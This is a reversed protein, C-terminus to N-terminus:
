LVKLRMWGGIAWRDCETNTWCYALCSVTVFLRKERKMQNHPSPSCHSLHEKEKRAPQWTHLYILLSIRQKSSIGCPSCGHEHQYNKQMNDKVEEVVAAWKGTPKHLFDYKSNRQWFSGEKKKWNEAWLSREYLDHFCMHYWHKHSYMSAHMNMVSECKVFTEVFLIERRYTGKFFCIFSTVAIM